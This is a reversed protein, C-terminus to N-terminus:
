GISISSPMVIATSVCSRSPLYPTLTSSITTTLFVAHLNERPPRCLCDRNEVESLDRRKAEVRFRRRSGVCDGLNRQGNSGLDIMPFSQLPRYTLRGM